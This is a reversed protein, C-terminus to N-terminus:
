QPSEYEPFWVVRSAVLPSRQILAMVRELQTIRGTPALRLRLDHQAETTWPANTPVAFVDHATASVVTWDAIRQDREWKPLAHGVASLFTRISEVLLRADPELAAVNGNLPYITPELRLAGSVRSLRFQGQEMEVYCNTQRIPTGTIVM